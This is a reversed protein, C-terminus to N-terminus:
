KVQISWLYHAIQMVAHEVTDAETGRTRPFVEGWAPMDQTGHAPISERGDTQRVVKELPFRGGNRQSILTLDSPPTRLERAISGDGKGTVGHCSACYRKYATEGKGAAGRNPAAPQQALVPVASLALWAGGVLVSWRATSRSHQM